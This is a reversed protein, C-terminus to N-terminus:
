QAGLFITLTGILLIAGMGVLVFLFIFDDANVSHGKVTVRGVFWIFSWVYVVSM